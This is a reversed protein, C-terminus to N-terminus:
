GYARSDRLGLAERRVWISERIQHHVYVFSTIRLTLTTKTLFLYFLYNLKVTIMKLIQKLFNTKTLKKIAFPSIMAGLIEFNLDVM